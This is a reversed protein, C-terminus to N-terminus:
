RDDGDGTLTGRKQRSQLRDINLKAIEGLNLELETAVQSVYWLVDGLEKKLQKVKDDTIKGDDDRWIKKVKNAIEAAEGALGLTPYVVRHGIKPYIATKASKKQYEDFNM